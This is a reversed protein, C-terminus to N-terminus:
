KGPIPQPAATPPSPLGEMQPIQDTIDFWAAKSGVCIHAMPRMGADTDLAGAPVVVAGQAVAPRPVKGGCRKCFAAGFRQAEPLKYDVVQDEGRTWRLQEIKYFLNAGHAAGRARRCRSCQCQYMLMPPGTLEYAIDGCLCSGLTKGPEAAYSPREVPAAGAFEPPYAHHQPLSDSITHFPAKSGVFMHEQPRIGPDGALEGAPVVVLGAEAMVMPAVSGCVTCFSRKGNPSSQYDAVASEGSLWRFGSLPAAAFTVFPAGHHKRCMSCHCNMMMTFPGDIEYRLTGCLCSGQTAM